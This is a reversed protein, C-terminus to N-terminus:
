LEALLARARDVYVTAEKAESETILEELLESTSRPWRPARACNGESTRL